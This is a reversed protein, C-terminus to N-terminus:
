YNLMLASNTYVEFYQFFNKIPTFTWDFKFIDLKRRFKNYYLIM